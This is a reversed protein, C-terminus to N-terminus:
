EFTETILTEEDQLANAAPHDGTGNPMALVACRVDGETCGPGEDAEGYYDYYSESNVETPSNVDGTFIFWKRDDDLKQKPASKFAFSLTVAMVFALLPLFQGIKKMM